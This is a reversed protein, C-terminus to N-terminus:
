PADFFKFQIVGSVIGYAGAMIVMGIILFLIINKAKSIDEEQGQSKIYYVAAFVIAILTLLMSAGLITKIVTKILSEASVEPLSGIAKLENNSKKDFEGPRPLLSRVAEDCKGYICQLGETCDADKECNTGYAHTAGSVYLSLILSIIILKLLKKM